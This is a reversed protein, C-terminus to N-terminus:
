PGGLGPPDGMGNKQAYKLAGTAEKMGRGSVTIGEGWPRAEVNVNSM